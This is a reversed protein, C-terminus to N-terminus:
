RALFADDGTKLFDLAKDLFMAPRRQVALFAIDELPYIGHPQIAQAFQLFASRKQFREIMLTQQIRRPRIKFGFRGIQLIGFKEGLQTDRRFGTCYVLKLM